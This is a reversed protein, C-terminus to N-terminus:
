VLALSSVAGSCAISFFQRCYCRLEFRLAFCLACAGLISFGTIANFAQSKRFKDISATAIFYFLTRHLPRVGM